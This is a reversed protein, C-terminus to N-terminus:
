ELTEPEEYEELEKMERLTPLESLDRLNFVELFRRTTGYMIPRGAVDKRGVIRVLNKDLLGKLTGSVDVGRVQEIESKLVPQQYAVVALTELAAQSLAAPRGGRLKLVWPTSVEATRFQYGGAVEMLCLGGQRKEYEDVLESLARAIENETVGDFIEKLKKMSLPGESMFVLSEIVAKLENM